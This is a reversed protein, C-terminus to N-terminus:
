SGTWPGSFRTEQVSRLQPFLPSKPLSYRLQFTSPIRGFTVSIFKIEGIDYM